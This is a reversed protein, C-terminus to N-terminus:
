SRRSAIRPNSAFDAHTRLEAQCARIRNEIEAVLTAESLGAYEAPQIPEGYRIHVPRKRPFWCSKPWADFAGEIAVPLITAKTRVALTTFGPKFPRIEGNPTRTGEPFIVLMGGAKLRKLSEKIGSLGVGERDLPIAYVWSLTRGIVPIDFLTQRALYNAPRPIGIGVMPPDLHSQHNAVVLVPGDAPINERGFYRVQLWLNVGLRLSNKWFEYWARKARDQWTKAM